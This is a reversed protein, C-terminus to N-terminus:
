ITKLISELHTKLAIYSSFEERPYRSVIGLESVNLVKEMSESLISPFQSSRSWDIYTLAVPINMEWCLKLIGSRLKPAFGNIKTKTELDEGFVILSKNKGINEEELIKKMAEYGSQKSRDLCCMFERCEKPISSLGSPGPNIVISRFESALAGLAVVDDLTGVGHNAIYVAPVDYVVSPSFNIKYDM